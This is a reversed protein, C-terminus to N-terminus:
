KVVNYVTYLMHPRRICSTHLMQPIASVSSFWLVLLFGTGAGDKEGCIGCPSSHLRVRAEATFPEVNHEPKINLTM